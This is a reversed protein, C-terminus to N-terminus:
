EDAEGGGFSRNIDEASKRRQIEDFQDVDGNIMLLKKLIYDEDYYQAGLLINQTEESKNIIQNRTYSPKDDIGALELIGNLFETVQMEFKDTDLDLPIYSAKIATATQNAATVASADFCQFDEYLRKKLMEVTTETGEFPAEVTHAEASAGNSDGDAHVVHTVKLQEIFRADDLDDMGGCNTLVWYILNGEDVNNVMNSTALDLADITNRRGTLESKCWRNNKLPVIPFTPYNGGDYIELGGADSSRVIQKYSRKPRLVVTEGNDNEGYETHGDLEYLSMRLPKNDALRWFRVGAKLAGDEEDYFPVFENLEFVRLQDYDWFGFAVGEIKAARAANTVRQEFNKGLKDLTKTDGFMIGNGLLYSVKQDVALGFFPSSIKHNASYMDVHAQGKMDYLIKEYNYITPNEGAYYKEASQATKYAKSGCHESIAAKAFSIKDAENDGAALLDQYTKM